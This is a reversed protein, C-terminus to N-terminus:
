FYPKRGNEVIVWKEGIVNGVKDREIVKKREVFDYAIIEKVQVHGRAVEDTQEVEEYMTPASTTESSTEALGDNSM